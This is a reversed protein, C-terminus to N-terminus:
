KFEFDFNSQQILENLLGALFLLGDQSNDVGFTEPLEANALGQLAVILQEHEQPFLRANISLGDMRIDRYKDSYKDILKQFVTGDEIQSYIDDVPYKENKDILFHLSLIPLTLRTINM